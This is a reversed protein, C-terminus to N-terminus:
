WLKCDPPEVCSWLDLLPKRDADRAFHLAMNVRNRPNEHSDADDIAIGSCFTQGYVGMFLVRREPTNCGGLKVCVRYAAEFGLIDPLTEHEHFSADEDRYCRMSLSQKVFDTGSNIVNNTVETAFDHAFEHGLIAGFRGMQAETSSHPDFYPPLLLTTPIFIANRNKMFKANFTEIHFDGPTHLMIDHRNFARGIVMSEVFTAGHFSIQKDDNLGFLPIVKELRDLHFRKFQESLM